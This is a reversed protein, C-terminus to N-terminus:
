RAPVCAARRRHHGPAAAPRDAQGAQSLGLRWSSMRLGQREGQLEPLRPSRSDSTACPRSSWPMPTPEGYKRLLVSWLVPTSASASRFTTKVRCRGRRADREENGINGPNIRLCDAGYEAVKLAIKYDFHIDAVMAICRPRRIQASRKRRKWPPCRSGSSTPAPGSSVGSRSWPPPLM